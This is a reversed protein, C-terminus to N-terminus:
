VGPLNRRALEVQEIFEEPHMPSILVDLGKRRSIRVTSRLSTVFRIGSYFLGGGVSVKRVERINRLPINMAFRGGLVIKVRDEYVQYRGPLVAWLLLGDFITVGLLIYAAIIDVFLLVIGSVLTGVTIVLLVLKLWADYRPFDEYILGAGDM